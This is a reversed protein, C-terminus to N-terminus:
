HLVEQHGGTPLGTKLFKHKRARNKQQDCSSRLSNLAAQILYISADAQRSRNPTWAAWRRWYRGPLQTQREKTKREKRNIKDRQTKWEVPQHLHPRTVQLWMALYQHKHARGVFHLCKTGTQAGSRSRRPQRSSGIQGCGAGLNRVNSCTEGVWPKQHSM